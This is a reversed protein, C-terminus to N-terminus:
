RDEERSTPEHRRSAHETAARVLARFLRLDDPDEEPHWQVGLLWDAGATDVSEVAEVTGDAARAAPRLGPAIHALAQHHYCPVKTEAGLIGALKSGPETRVVQGGFVAPGPRHQEHGVVEPLHQHLTGGLAVNILQAGRCLGLVPVRRVVAERLLAIEHEDRDPHSRTEPHPEAGYGGPDVDPGGILVVGDLVDLVGTDTRVPPLLLPAGGAATVGHLYVEPVLAAPRDWTGWRAVELYTTLGIRPRPESDNSGV